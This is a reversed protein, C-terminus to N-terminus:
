YDRSFVVNAGGRGQDGYESEVSIRPSIQYEVRVENANVGNETDAGFNRRYGLYIRDSLYTGAEVRTQQARTDTGVEVQLVDLPVKNSLLRRLRSALYNGAVSAAGSGAAVGGSGRKLERRGTAILTAIETEDLAPESSLELRPRRATGTIAVKVKVQERFNEHTARLDLRPNNVPDSSWTLKSRRIEFRRGLAEARGQRLVAEGTLEFRGSAMVGTIDAGAEAKLDSSELTVDDNPAVLHVRLAFGPERAPEPQAAAALQKETPASGTRVFLDPHAELPQLDKGGILEPLQARVRGLRVEFAAGKGQLQGTLRETSGTVFAVLRDNAILPLNQAELRGSLEYPAEDTARDAHADFALSGNGARARLRSVDLRRDTAALDVDIERWTGFGPIAVQGGRLRASGRPRLAGVTGTVEGSLTLNGMVQRAPSLLALLKLDLDESRLRADIPAASWNLGELLSALGLDIGLDAAAAASRGNAPLVKVELSAKRARYSGWSELRGLSKGGTTLPSTSAAVELVPEGLTGRVDAKISGSGAALERGYGLASPLDIPGASLHAEVPAALLAARDAWQMPALAIRAALAAAPAGLWRLQSAVAVEGGRASVDARLGLGTFRGAAGGDVSLRIEGLPAGASGELRGDLTAAGALGAPLVNGSLLALPAGRASFTARMPAALLARRAPQRLLAGLTMGLDISAELPKGALKGSLSARTAGNSDLRLRVDSAQADAWTARAAWLQARAGPRDMTGDLDLTLDATGSLTAKSSLLRGIEGLDVREFRARASLPASGPARLLARPLDAVVQARAPGRALDARGSLRQAGLALWLDADVGRLRAVGLQTGRLRGRIEPNQAPGSVEAHLDLRGSLGKPALRAPLLPPISALELRRAEVSLSLASRILGGRLALLQNGSKMGLCDVRFGSRLDVHTPAAMVWRSGKAALELQELRAGHHDADLLGSLHARLGALGATSLDAVFARREAQVSANLNAFPLEGIRGRQAAATARFLFPRAADPIEGQLTLGEISFSGSELSALRGAVGVRLRKPPGQFRASLEGRGGLRPMEVGFLREIAAAFRSASELHLAAALDLATRRASGQLEVRGGPLDALLWRVDMEGDELLASGRASAVEVSRVQSPELSLELHGRRPSPGSLGGEIRGNLATSPLGTFLRALDLNSFTAAASPAFPSFGAKGQVHVQGGGAAAVRADVSLARADVAFSGSAALDSAVPHGPLLVDLLARPVALDAVQSTLHGRSLRGSIRARTSPGYLALNRIDLPEFPGAASGGECSLTVTFPGALPAAIEGAADGSLQAHTRTLEGSAELFVRDLSVLPTAEPALRYRFSLGAIAIHDAIIALDPPRSPGAARRRPAFARALNMGEPQNELALLAGRADVAAARLRKAALSPLHIWARLEDIRAVQKGEPDYLAIGRLDVAGTWHIQLAAIELRGQISANIRQLAEQRLRREGAPSTVYVVAALALALAAALLGLAALGLRRLATRTRTRAM